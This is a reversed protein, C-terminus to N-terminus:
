KLVELNTQGWDIILKAYILIYNLYETVNIYENTTHCQNISGPGFQITPRAAINHWIRADSGAMAGAITVCKGIADKYVNRAIKVLSHDAEMEFAGGSQYISIQPIHTKLWIDGSSYNMLTETIDKIVQDQSMISPLYHVCMKFSCYDPVTSGAKGGEIVGINLNPPPLLIHKFKMLWKREMEYLAEILKIANDIANVGNWKSGSHVSLGDVEVKFFTFGMAATVIKNDTPECVVVADAKQGALVAALSGNGGGEEDVVSTIIVDCPLQIEADKLLKVAMTAAMLGSKMDCVGLGYMNGNIVELKWPDTNWLSLDGAPMTDVHGNFMISKIGKGKFCAYLNFREDYNHNPNGENYREIGDQIVEESMQDKQITAGMMSFLSYLMNQGNKELGGDIGHGIVQTNCAVLDELHKIYEESKQELVKKLKELM